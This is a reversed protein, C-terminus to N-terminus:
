HRRVLVVLSRGAVIIDPTHLRPANHVEVIDDPTSAATTIVCQWESAQGVQVTFQADDAGGNIMVYLDDDDLARGDLYYALVAAESGLDLRAGQGFWQVDSRWFRSRAISPHARRFAIMMRFFRHVDRNREMASWDIWTLENDQNYPNNNGQQTQMFEDGAVILPVGNALMLLACFNRIQRRRLTLVQEPAGTDGEWGCNWSRNDNSGDANHEGNVHNRKHNYSVLDYLCFGDHATIFNVSQYPRYADELTDPFLDDSGYLRRMLQPVLGRDGRVFSRVDDRFQGNWQLWTQGPFGRGLQYSAIDWAEAVLRVDSNHGFLSIEAILSPNNQNITGDSERTFISALDFRFGDVGMTGAWFRLSDLIMGRVAAHGTRLTNGTGTDNVYTVGDSGLLYYSRNDIGRFSYTPGGAGGESTHNYVVDLWVEIDAAHFATVMRHFEELPDGAAYQRHPSFFNLTMYGWYSGEQPDAQHVPLLEVITVGLDRLYPIKEILGAFTGRHEPTVGSNARMTFGRVHLEYIVADATHRPRRGSPRLLTQRPTPLVGLPARGDTAGRRACAQRSYDPPFYVEPAYPDLLIKQPDFHHGAAPDDPGASRYAYYCADHVTAGAVWCHWVRGTKNALRDFEVQHIPQVPDDAAYLLLTVGTAHRSYLAFNFAQYEAVWTVGLPSPAGERREWAEVTRLLGHRHHM